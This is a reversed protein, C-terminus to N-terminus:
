AAFAKSMLENALIRANAETFTLVDYDRKEVWKGYNMGAVVVLVFGNKHRTAIEVALGKGDKAGTAGDRTKKTRKAANPDFGHEIIINGDQSIVYGISARLNGTQDTYSGQDRAIKVAEEGVYALNNIIVRRVRAVEEAIVRTAVDRVDFKARIGM